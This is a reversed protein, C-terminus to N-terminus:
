SYNKFDLEFNELSTEEQQTLERNLELERLSNRNNLLDFYKKDKSFYM